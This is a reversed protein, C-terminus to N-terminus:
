TRVRDDDLPQERPLIPFFVYGMDHYPDNLDHPNSNFIYTTEPRPRILSHVLRKEISRLKRVLKHVRVYNEMAESSGHISIGLERAQGWSVIKLPNAASNYGFYSGPMRWITPLRRVEQLNLGFLRRAVHHTVAKVAKGRWICDYCYRECTPGFLWLALGQCCTCKESRLATYLTTASHHQILQIKRLSILTKPAHKILDRYAPLSDVMVKALHSTQTFRSLSQVDAHSLIILLIETPLADLRGVSPHQSDSLPLPVPISEQSSMMPRFMSEHRRNLESIIPKDSLRRIDMTEKAMLM